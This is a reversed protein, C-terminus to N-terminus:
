GFILMFYPLITIKNAPLYAPFFAITTLVDSSPVLSLLNPCAKTAPTSLYGLFTVLFIPYFFINFLVLMFGNTFYTLRLWKIGVLYETAAASKSRFSTTLSSLSYAASLLYSIFFYTLVINWSLYLFKGAYFVPASLDLWKLNKKM